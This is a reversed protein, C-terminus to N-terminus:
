HGKQPQGAALQADLEAIEADLATAKAQLKQANKNWYNYFATDSDHLADAANGQANRIEAQLADLEGRKQELKARIEDPTLASPWNFLQLM